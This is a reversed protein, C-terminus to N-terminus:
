ANKISAVRLSGGPKSFAPIIQINKAKTMAPQHSSPNIAPILERRAPTM